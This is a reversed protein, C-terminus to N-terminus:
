RARRAQAVLHSLRQSVSVQKIKLQSIEFREIAKKILTLPPINRQKIGHQSIAACFCDRCIPEHKRPAPAPTENENITPIFIRENM